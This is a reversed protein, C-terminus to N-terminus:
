EQVIFAADNEIAATTTTTLKTGSLSSASWNVIANAVKDPADDHPCHGANDITEVYVRDVYVGDSKLKSFLEARSKAAEPSSVRDDLGKVVLVDIDILVENLPRNPGLKQGSGIVNPSGPSSASQQIAYAVAPDANDMNNGYIVSLRDEIQPYIFKVISSGFIDLVKNGFIPVPSYPTEPNGEFAAETHSTIDSGIENYGDYTDPDLLVGATNCLM